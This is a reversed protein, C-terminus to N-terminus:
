EVPLSLWLAEIRASLTELDGDNEIILDAAQEGATLDARAAIRAAVEAESGGRARLREAMVDASVRVFWVQDVLSRWGAEILLPAELVFVDAAAAVARGLATYAWPNLPHTLTSRVAGAAARLPSIAAHNLEYAHYLM